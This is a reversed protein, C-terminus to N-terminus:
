QDLLDQYNTASSTAYKLKPLVKLFILCLMRTLLCDLKPNEGAIRFEDMRLEAISFKRNGTIVKDAIDPIGWADTRLGKKTLAKILSKTDCVLSDVKPQDLM